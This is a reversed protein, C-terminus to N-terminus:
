ENYGGKEGLGKTKAYQQLFAVFREDEVLRCAHYRKLFREAESFSPFETQKEDHEIMWKGEDVPFTYFYDGKSNEYLTGNQAGKVNYLNQESDARLPEMRFPKAVFLEYAEETLPCGSAKVHGGGGFQNAIQSVDTEDHITRFSMRKGGMNVIAIYDIHPHQKGLENGLESHYSEAHVIGVCNDGSFTQVLERKKKRIYREIKENEVALLKEEFENFFFRDHEQLRQTMNEAFEEISMLFLLDNLQKATKNNHKDWEWTDYQRVLETFENLSAKEELFGNQQLFEYFLSTASALRGDEYAVKVSAWEKENLHLATKHHDLLTVKGGMQVFENLRKENEENVSLDTIFLYTKKDHEELFREVQYNLSGISNYRVEAKEGFAYKALIGCGVGDLDNHTLIYYM